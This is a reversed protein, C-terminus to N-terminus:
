VPIGLDRRLADFEETFRGNGGRLLLPPEDRAVGEGARGRRLAYVSFLAAKGIKPVVDRWAALALGAAKAAAEVRARQQAAACAVFPADPALLRAAALCYAEVGGRHEFRCPGCQVRGSEIGTGVPLYPPTGTVLDAPGLGELAAPDRLDAWRVECRGDLGNWGVSRRAMASSVEQAEVGACRAEPFRWATFLLVTGIGCGLDVARRPPAHKVQEAAFWATVLDDASWRHGDLRQLIRFDGSLYCLDEGPGPWVEPRDPTVPRPGPAVWGPPRRAPRVVGGTPAIFPQADALATM